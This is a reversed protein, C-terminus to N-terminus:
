NKAIAFNLEEPTECYYVNKKCDGCFSIAPNDTRELDDWSKYCKFKFKCNRLFRSAKFDPEPTSM